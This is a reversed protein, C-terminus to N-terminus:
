KRLIMKMTKNFDDTLLRYFYIGSSLRTGDFEVSYNGPLKEEDLIVSVLNGLVDYVELNIHTTKTTSYQIVTSPNFPNPFNQKLSFAIPNNTIEEYINSLNGTLTATAAITLQTIKKILQMNLTNFTDSSTHYFPNAQYWQNTNWPWANEILCIASYGEDWFSAHDSGTGSAFPPQNMVIGLNYISDVSLFKKGLWQSQSNAVISQYFFYNNYGIMDISVMGLLSDNNLRSTHAFLKSGYHGGSYAPGSEEAGFAVFYITYDNNFKNSSDSITRAIELLSAVGSANDDAGPAKITRWQQNWINSGMRSASCDLHAGLVFSINPYKKGTLKATVNFLPKYRYPTDASAIFFTDLRISSLGKYSEFAKKIYLVASDNGNTFNVRSNHGGPKELYKIHYILNSLSVSDMMRQIIGSQAILYNTTWLLFVITIFSKRM